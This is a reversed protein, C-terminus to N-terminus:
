LKGIQEYLEAVRPEGTTTKKPSVGDFLGEAGDVLQKKWLTIHTPHVHHQQALESVTKLGAVADLAVKAKFASSFSRRKRTM